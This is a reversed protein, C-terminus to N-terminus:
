KEKKKAEKEAKKIIKAPVAETAETPIEPLDDKVMKGAKEMATEAMDLKNDKADLGGVKALNKALDGVVPVGEGKPMKGTKVEDGVKALNKALDGVMPLKEVAKPVPDSNVQLFSAEGM